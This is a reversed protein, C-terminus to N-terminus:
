FGYEEPRCMGIYRTYPLVEGRANVDPLALLNMETYDSLVNTFLALQTEQPLASFGTITVASSWRQKWIQFGDPTSSAVDLHPVRAIESSIFQLSPSNTTTSSASAEDPPEPSPKLPMDQVVPTFQTM